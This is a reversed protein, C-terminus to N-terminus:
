PVILQNKYNRDLGFIAFIYFRQTLFYCNNSIMVKFNCLSCNRIDKSCIQCYITLAIKLSICSLNKKKQLCVATRKVITINQEIGARGMRQFPPHNLIDCFSIQELPERATESYM